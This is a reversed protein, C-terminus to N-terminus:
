DPRFDLGAGGADLTLQDADVSWTVSPAGVVTLVARELDVVAEERCAHPTLALEGFRLQDGDTTATTRGTHCGTEVVVTGDAAIAISASADFPVSWVADRTRVGAVVWRQGVLPLDPDAVEEDVLQIVTGGSSLAIQEGAVALGPAGALFGSLWDDQAHLEADCGMATMGAAEVVLRAGDLRYTGGMSNCGASAGLRGDNGFQLRVQTAAVLPRAVGSETVAVSLFTRGALDGPDPEDDGPEGLPLGCAAALVGVVLVTIFTSRAM